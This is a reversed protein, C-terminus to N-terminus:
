PKHMLQKRVFIEVREGISGIVTKKSGFAIQFTQVGIIGGKNQFLAEQVRGYAKGFTQRTGPDFHRPRQFWQVLFQLIQQQSVLASGGM